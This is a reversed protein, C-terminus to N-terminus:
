KIEKISYMNTMMIYGLPRLLSTMSRNGQEDIAVGTMTDDFALYRFGHMKGHRMLFDHFSAFINDITKPPCGFSAVILINNPLGLYGDSRAREM